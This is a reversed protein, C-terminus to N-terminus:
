QAYRGEGTLRYAKALTVLHQHRSLEWIVKADGVHDFDLYPVRFWARRPARKGHVADLHWDIRMGYDVGEYGLLDFRHECIQEAQNVTGEVVEPLRERLCRLIEPVEAPTFFFRRSDQSQPLRGDRPFPGGIQGLALDWRKAFEQRTRERLEDWGMEM